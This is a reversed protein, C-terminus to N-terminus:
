PRENCELIKSLKEYIENPLNTKFSRNPARKKIAVPLCPRCVYAGRGNANGKEDIEYTSEGSELTEKYVRIRNIAIDKERCVVCIREKQYKANM